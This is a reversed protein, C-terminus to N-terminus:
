VLKSFSYEDCYYVVVKSGNDLIWEIDSGVTSNSLLKKLNDIEKDTFDWQKLWQKFYKSTTNSYNYDTTVELYYVESKYRAIVTDYSQFYDVGNHEISFQNAVKNGQTSTLNIVKMSNKRRMNLIM